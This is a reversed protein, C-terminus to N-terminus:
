KDMRVSMILPVLGVVNDCGRQETPCFAVGTFRVKGVGNLQLVPSWVASIGLASVVM